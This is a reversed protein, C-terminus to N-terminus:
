FLFWSEPMRSLLTVGEPAVVVGTPSRVSSELELTAGRRLHLERTGPPVPVGDIRWEFSGPDVLPLRDLPIALDEGALHGYEAPRALWPHKALLESAWFRYRGTAPVTWSAAPADPRVTASMGPIWLNQYLPLYHRFVYAALRPFARIWLDIRVNYVIAAPPNEAIREVDYPEILNATALFRVGAPLFWYRYAPERRLAYGCGDWVDADPATVSDAARMVEDQYRLDRGFPGAVIPVANMLLAAAAVTIVLVAHRQVRDLAAAALPFMLLLANQFHYDYHVGMSAVAALSAVAAIAMVTMVGANRISRFALAAGAIAAATFSVAAIDRQILPAVIRDVFSRAEPPLMGATITNYRIVGEVFGPWAGTFVLQATFLAAVPVVGAAMWLARGNWRWREGDSRRFLMVAATIVALPALRMNSLVAASMLAGFGAWTRASGTRLVVLAIAGLYALNGPVDVRYQIATRTFWPSAILFALAMWRGWASVGARRALAMVIAVIAIWLVLQAWRMALVADAGADDGFLASVPAFLVWQLPLHHEWYDRFPVQGEAVWRTARYFELEDWTLTERAVYIVAIVAAACVVARALM